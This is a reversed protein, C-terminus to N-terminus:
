TAHNVSGLDKSVQTGYIQDNLLKIKFIEEKLSLLTIM